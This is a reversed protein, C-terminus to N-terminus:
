KKPYYTCREQALRKCEPLKQDALGRKKAEAACYRQLNHRLTLYEQQSGTKRDYNVVQRGAEKCNAAAGPSPAGAENGGDDGGCGALTALVLLV